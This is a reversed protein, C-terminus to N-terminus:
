FNISFNSFFEIFSNISFYKVTKLHKEYNEFFKAIQKPACNRMLNSLLVCRNYLSGFAISFQNFNNQNTASFQENWYHIELNGVPPPSRQGLLKINIWRLINVPSWNNSPKWKCQGWSRHSFCRYFIPRPNLTWQRFWDIIFVARWVVSALLNEEWVM